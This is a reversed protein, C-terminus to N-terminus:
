RSTRLLFFRQWCWPRREEWEERIVEKFEVFDMDSDPDYQQVVGDNDLYDFYDYHADDKEDYMYCQITVCTNDSTNVLRHTQNLTPSIWMVDGEVFDASGFSPAEPSLFPFLNVHISGKLVRIVAEAGAHSHIPSFHGSPWIEMVYPVGPSEGNNTGLTIRLYTESPNPQKNFETAKERLKEYCWKGPTNISYEIAEYFDPFDLTNLLFRKGGICDFLKQSTVPLNAKPMIDGLAVDDMTIDNIDKVRLPVCGTVPDRLLRLPVLDSSDSHVLVHTLSELFEKNSEHLHKPFRYKYIITELRPEGIGAYLMQNQSDLSFWYYAGPTAVLGRGNKPDVLPESTPLSTVHLANPLFNVAIGNVRQADFITFACLHGEPANNEFVFVGQGRVPFRISKLSKLNHAKPM